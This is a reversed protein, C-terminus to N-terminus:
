VRCWLAPVGLVVFCVVGFWLGAVLSQFVVGWFCGCSHSEVNFKYFEGSKHDVCPGGITSHLTLSRWGINFEVGQVVACAGWVCLVVVCSLFVVVFSGCSDSEVSAIYFEVGQVVFTDLACCLQSGTM